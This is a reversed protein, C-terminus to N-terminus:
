NGICKTSRVSKIKNYRCTAALLVHRRLRPQFVFVCFLDTAATCTYMLQVATIILENSVQPSNFQADGFQVKVRVGLQVPSQLAIFVGFVSSQIIAQSTLSRRLRNREQIAAKSLRAGSKAYEENATINKGIFPALSKVVQLFGSM